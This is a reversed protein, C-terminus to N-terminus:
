NRVKYFSFNEAYSKPKIVRQQPEIVRCQYSKKEAYALAEERTDFTLHLQQKTDTQGVWGMLGDVFKPATEDFEMVWVGTKLKARGSQMANKAPQFIKVYANM